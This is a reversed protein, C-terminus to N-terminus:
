VTSQAFELTQALEPLLEFLVYAISGALPVFLLIYLWWRPRGSRIAHIAFGIAIILHLVGIGRM